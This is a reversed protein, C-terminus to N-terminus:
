FIFTLQSAADANSRAVLILAIESDSTLGRIMQLWDWPM